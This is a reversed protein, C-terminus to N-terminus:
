FVMKRNQTMKRQYAYERIIKYDSLTKVQQSFKVFDETEWAYIQVGQEMLVHSIAANARPTIKPALFISFLDDLNEKEREYIVFLHDTIALVENIAQYQAATSLTPECTAFINGERIEIDAGSNKGNMGSATKFPYGGDDSIYNPYIKLHPLAKKLTIASLFELRVTEAIYKFREDQSGNKGVMCRMEKLLEDWELSSSLEDLLNLKVDKHKDIIVEEPRFLLNEDISGMYNFYDNENSFTMNKAYTNLIFDVKEKEDPNIDLFRANGRFSVLRTLRLKRVIEDPTERTIKDIKYDTGKEKIFEKDAKVLTNKIQNEENLFSMVHEYVLEKSTNYGFKERFENIIKSLTKYDNNHWVIVFPLDNIALGSRNYTTKLENIVSLVLYFFNIKVTNSRFLNNTQYKSFVMLFASEEASSNYEEKKDGSLYNSIMLRGVESIKIPKNKSVFVLGLENLFNFQTHLRSEWGGLWGAEKHQTITNELLYIIEEKSCNDKENEFWKKFLYRVRQPANLSQDKAKFFFKKNYYAVYNGLTSVTPEFIKKRIIDAELELAIDSTLVKGEYQSLISIFQPIRTPNRLTTDFSIPKRRLNGKRTM